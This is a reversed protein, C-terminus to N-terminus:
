HRTGRELHSNIPDKTVTSQDIEIVLFEDLHADLLPGCLRCDLIPTRPSKM